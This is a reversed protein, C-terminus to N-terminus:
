ALQDVFDPGLCDWSDIEDSQKGDSLHYTLSGKSLLETVLDRDNRNKKLVIYFKIERSTPSKTQIVYEEERRSIQM